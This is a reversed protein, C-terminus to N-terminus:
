AAVSYKELINQIIKKYLDGRLTKHLEIARQLLLASPNLNRGLIIEHVVDIHVDVYHAFGEITYENTSLIDNIVFRLFNQELMVMEMDATFKTLRFYEKHHVRFIEKLEKCISYFLDAELILNEERSLKYPNIGILRCLPEIASM